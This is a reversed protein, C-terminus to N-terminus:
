RKRQPEDDIPVKAWVAAAIFALAAVYQAGLWLDGSFAFPIIPNWIVVIAILPAIWLYAKGQALIVAIIAGLIAVAFRIIIFADGDILAVGALLAIAALIGPAM